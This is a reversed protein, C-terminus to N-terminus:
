SGRAAAAHKPYRELYGVLASFFLELQVLGQEAMRPASPGLMRAILQATRSDTQLFLDAKHRLLPPDADRTVDYHLVVVAKVPVAPLLRTPRSTGEAYWIRKKADRYVTEWSVTTGVGDTWKFRGSGLDSIERGRAGLRHWAKMAQDPHDLFWHYLAPSARFSESPGSATLTPAMMVQRVAVPLQAASGAMSEPLGNNPDAAKLRCMGDALIVALLAALWKGRAQAVNM